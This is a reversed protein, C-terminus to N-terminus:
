VGFSEIWLYIWIMPESLFASYGVRIRPYDDCCGVPGRPPVEYRGGVEGERM